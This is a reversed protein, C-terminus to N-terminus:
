AIIAANSDAKSCDRPSASVELGNHEGAFAGVEAKARANLLVQGLLDGPREGPKMPQQPSNSFRRRRGDRGHASLAQAASQFQRQGAVQDQRFLGRLKAARFDLEAYKRGRSRRQQRTRMPAPRAAARTNLPALMVPLQPPLSRGPSGCQASRSLQLRRKGLPQRCIKQRAGSGSQAIGRPGNTTRQQPRQFLIQRHDLADVQLFQHALGIRGLSNPGKQLLSRRAPAADPTVCSDPVRWGSRARAPTSRRSRDSRPASSSPLQLRPAFGDPVHRDINRTLQNMGRSHQRDADHACAVPQLDDAAVGVELAVDAVDRAAGDFESEASRSSTSSPM